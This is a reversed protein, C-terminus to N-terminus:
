VVSKRDLLVAGAFKDDATDKELKARLAAILEPQSLRAAAFESPTKIQLIHQQFGFLDQPLVVGSQAAYQYAKDYDTGAQAMANMLGQNSRMQQQQLQLQTQMGQQQLNRIRMEQMSALTQLPDTYQAPPIALPQFNPAPPAFEIPM